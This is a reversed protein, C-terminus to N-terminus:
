VCPKNYMGRAQSQVDRRGSLRDNTACNPPLSVRGDLSGCTASGLDPKFKLKPFTIPVGHVEGDKKKAPKDEERRHEMSMIGNYADVSM